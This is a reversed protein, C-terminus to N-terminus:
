APSRTHDLLYRRLDLALSTAGLAATVGHDNEGLARELQSQTEALTVLQSECLRRALPVQHDDVAEGFQELRPVIVPRRGRALSVMISGVGSHTVFVRSRGILESLEEYPLYAVCTAGTPRVNSPGHQVVLEERSGIDSVWELHRDFPAENTGVSVVIM